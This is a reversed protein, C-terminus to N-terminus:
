APSAYNNQTCDGIATHGYNWKVNTGLVIAGSGSLISADTIQAYGTGIAYCNAGDRFECDRSEQMYVYSTQNIGSVIFSGESYNEEELVSPPNTYASTLETAVVAGNIIEIESTAGIIAYASTASYAYAHAHLLITLKLTQDTLEPTFMIEGDDNFQVTFTLPPIFSADQTITITEPAAQSNLYIYGIRNTLTNTNRTLSVDIMAFNSVDGSTPTFSIWNDSKTANWISNTSFDVSYTNAGGITGNSSAELTKDLPDIVYMISDVGNVLVEKKYSNRNWGEKVINIHYNFIANTSLDTITIDGSSDLVNFILSPFSSSSKEYFHLSASICADPTFDDLKWYIKVSTADPKTVYFTSPNYNFIDNFLTNANIETNSLLEGTSTNLKIVNTNKVLSSVDFIINTNEISTSDNGINFTNDRIDRVIAISKSDDENNQGSSYVTFPNYFSADVINSYEIRAYNKPLINYIRSPTSTYNISNTSYVNDIIYKTSVDVMSPDIKAFINYYRQYGNLVNADKNTTFYTVKSLKFGLSTYKNTESFNIEYLNGMNDVFVEGNQYVRNGPLLTGPYATSWLVQNNTIANRILIKDILPNYDTFYIAFGSIGASGDTGKPAYGLLGPSYNFRM